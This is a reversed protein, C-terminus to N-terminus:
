SSLDPNLAALEADEEREAKRANERDAFDHPNQAYDIIVARLATTGEDNRPFTELDVVKSLAETRRVLAELQERNMFDVSDPPATEKSLPTCEVIRFEKFRKCEPHQKQIAPTLLKNRLISKCEALKPVRVTVEFPKDIKGKQDPSPAYYKGKVRLKYGKGGAATSYETDFRAAATPPPAPPAAARALQEDRSPGQTQPKDVQEVKPTDAAGNLEKLLDDHEAM